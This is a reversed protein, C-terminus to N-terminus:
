AELYKPSVKWSKEINKPPLIKLQESEFITLLVCVM